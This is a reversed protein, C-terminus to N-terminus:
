IKIKFHDDILENKHLYIIYRFFCDNEASQKDNYINSDFHVFNNGLRFDCQCVFNIEKNIEKITKKVNIKINKSIFLNSIENFLLMCNKLSMKAETKGIYYYINKELHKNEIYNKNMFNNPNKINNNKDLFYNKFQVYESKNKENFPTNDKISTLNNMKSELSFIFIKANSNKAKEKIKEFDSRANIMDNFVLIYECKEKTLYELAPITCILINIKNENYQKKREYIENNTIRTSLTLNINDEKKNNSGLLFTTKNRYYLNEPTDRNLYNYLIYAMKRNNVFIITKANKDCSYIENLKNMFKNLRDTKYDVNKNILSEFVKKNMTFLIILKKYHKQLYINNNKSEILNKLNNEYLEKYRNFLFYFEKLDMNQIINILMKQIDEFTKFMFSNKLLFHISKESAETNNYEIFIEKSFKEKIVSLYKDKIKELNFQNLEQKNGNIKIYDDLCFDLMPIFFYKLLLIKIADIKSKQEFISNVKIISYNEKNLAQDFDFLHPDIVIQCDLNESINKLIELGKQENKINIKDKFPTQTIGLIKPLTKPNVTSSPFKFYYFYFEQMIINYPHNADCLHCDNFIILGFNSLNVFGISLLKYLINPIIIFLNNLKLQTTFSQFDNKNKKNKGKQFLISQINANNKYLEYIEKASETDPTLYCIKKNQFLNFNIASNILYNILSINKSIIISNNFSNKNKDIILKLLNMYISNEEYKENQIFINNNIKYNININMSKSEKNSSEKQNKKEKNNSKEIESYRFNIKYNDIKEFKPNNNLSINHIQIQSNAQFGKQESYDQNLINIQENYEVDFNDENFGFNM